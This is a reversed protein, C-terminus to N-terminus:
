SFLNIYLNRQLMTYVIYVIYHTNSHRYIHMKILDKLICMNMVRQKGGAGVIDTNWDLPSHPADNLEVACTLVSGPTVM